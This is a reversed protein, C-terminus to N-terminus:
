RGPGRGPGPHAAKPGVREQFRAPVEAAVAPSPVQRKRVIRLRPPTKWEDGYLQTALSRGLVEALLPPTANGVQRVQSRRTGEVKWGHPFTQLRLAERVSLPRNDWHFPGTSPGPSAPLTWSPLDKALKLLFSWYRTRDGFLEVGEGKATHFLYNRGEPISPLLDAFEGAAVPVAHTPVDALADYARTWRGVHTPTPWQYNQKTRLAVILARSRRQPVGFDAANLTRYDVTYHTGHKDNISEFAQGIVDLASTRGRVFGPVNEVVVARPLFKEVLDLFSHLPKAREDKLGQRANLHWQAAKSFPQCPPGGALVALARRRLGLSGPQLLRAAKVIDPEDLLKGFKNKSFSARADQDREIAAITRFGAMHLGLDLGGIGSFASLVSRNRVAM